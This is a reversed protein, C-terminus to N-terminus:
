EREVIVTAREGDREGHQGGLEIGVESLVVGVRGRIEDAVPLVGDPEAAVFEVLQDTLQAARDGGPQGVLGCAVARPVQEARDEKRDLFRGSVRGGGSVGAVRLHWIASFWRAVAKGRGPDYRDVAKVLGLAAVQRLDEYSEGRGRFRSAIRDAMPLWAGVVEERLTDHQPGPPLTALRRFAKDTDPADGHPRRQTSTQTQM